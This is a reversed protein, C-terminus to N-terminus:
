HLPKQSQYTQYVRYGPRRRPLRAKSAQQYTIHGELLMWRLLYMDHMWGDLMSRPGDCSVSVLLSQPELVLLVNEKLRGHLSIAAAVMTCCLFSDCCCLYLGSVISFSYLDFNVYLSFIKDM